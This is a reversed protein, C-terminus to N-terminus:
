TESERTKIVDRYAICHKLNVQQEAAAAGGVRLRREDRDQGDVWVDDDAAQLVVQVALEVLRADVSVVVQAGDDLQREEYLVLSLRRLRVRGRGLAVEAHGAGVLHRRQGALPRVVADSVM